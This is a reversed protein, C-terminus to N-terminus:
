GAVPGASPGTPSPTPTATPTSTPTPTATPTASPTPTASQSPSSPSPSPSGHRSATAKGKTGAKASPSTGHHHGPSATGSGQPGGGGKGSAPGSGHRSHSNTSAGQDSAPSFLATRLPSLAFVGAVVIVVAGAVALTPRLWSMTPGVWRRVGADVPRDHSLGEHRGSGAAAAAAGRALPSRVRRGGSRVIGALGSRAASFFPECRVAILWGLATLETRLLSMRRKLWPEAIRRQIKALGDGAPEIPDLTSHLVRSLIDDYDRDPRTM